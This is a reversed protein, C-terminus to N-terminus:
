GMGWAGVSAMRASQSYWAVSGRSIWGSSETEWAPRLRRGGMMVEIHLVVSPVMAEPLGVPLVVESPVAVPGGLVVAPVNFHLM